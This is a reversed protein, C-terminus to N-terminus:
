YFAHILFAKKYWSNYHMICKESSFIILLSTKTKTKVQATGPFCIDWELYTCWFNVTGRWFNISLFYNFSFSFDMKREFATKHAKGLHITQKVSVAWITFRDDENYLWKWSQKQIVFKLTLSLTSIDIFISLLIHCM